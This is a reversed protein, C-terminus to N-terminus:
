NMLTLMKYQRLNWASASISPGMKFEWKENRKNRSFFFPSFINEKIEKM